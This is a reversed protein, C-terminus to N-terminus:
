GGIELTENLFSLECKSAEKGCFADCIKKQPNLVIAFQWYKSFQESQTGRDTGSMFVPLENPHTHYWGIVILKDKRESNIDDLKRQMEDWAEHNFKVYSASGQTRAQITDEVIGYVINGCQYIKGILIGGQEVTNRPTSQGWEIHSLMRKQALPQFILRRDYKIREAPLNGYHLPEEIVYPTFRTKSKIIFRSHSSLSSAVRNSTIQKSDASDKDSNVENGTRADEIVTASDSKGIKLETDNKTVKNILHRSHVLFISLVIVIACFLIAVGFCLWFEVEMTKEKEFLEVTVNSPQQLLYNDSDSGTLIVNTTVSLVGSLSETTGYGLDFGVDDGPVVGNLVGGVLEVQNSNSQIRNKAVVGDITLNLKYITCTVDTPQSLEYKGSENNTLLISTKVLKNVGANKNELQGKGLVFGVDFDESELGVLTGGVLDVELSGNYDRSVATVGTITVVIPVISITIEGYFSNTGDQVELIYVGSDEFTANTITYENNVSIEIGDKTWTYQPEEFSNVCSLVFSDGYYYERLNDSTIIELAAPTEYREEAFAFEIESYIYKGCIYLALMTILCVIRYAINRLKLAKLDLDELM